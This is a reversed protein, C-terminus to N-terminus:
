LCVCVNNLESYFNLSHMGGERGIGSLGVGGFPTRLDRLFWCNVWTIGVNMQQAVRHGRKLNTTWISAALGYKTENALSVAEEETDFPAIHCVPGFIEEKVCRASEALGTYITPQVYFGNDLENGFHPVGGGTVITAGEERALRYYSLVKERHQASILPGLETSKELPSGIHLRGAKKELADVFRDFIAREVYVRETCLCVQGTNLFVAEAVGSAADDFDCDAFVIAANKGGLEFSVPKVSAAATKMIAAGTQSEGTFTVANVDPHRTLFEGASNPGFGHVVNYVGDPIGAAEMVEALLTATAPTEESPKVVVTNGCALAPAVKWTLLLLPLNWPTIIGVVGLPKRVAYNLATQGDPTETQFSELSATKILDAFARCNAAARPVDLRSALSIPKGTDAVEAAVFCDFRAEIGDAVKHLRAARERVGLKGWEDSSAKRAAQVADDVQGQDAETVQAIISGDAPNADAFERKGRVFQGDIYNLISKVQRSGRRMTVAWMLRFCHGSIHWALDRAFIDSCRM